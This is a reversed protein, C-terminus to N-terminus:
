NKYTLKEIINKSDPYIDLLEEQTFLEFDDYHFAPTVVCGVLSFDDGEGCVTSGFIVGKPVTYQFLEGAGRGLKVKHYEGSPFIMHITLSKGTHYFWLEDSKLRHFRSPNNATLLFLINSSLSRVRGDELKIKEDSLYTEKYYGGEQHEQLGLNDIYFKYDKEM